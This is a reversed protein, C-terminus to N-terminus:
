NFVWSVQVERFFKRYFFNHLSLIRSKNVLEVLKIEIRGNTGSLFIKSNHQLSRINIHMKLKQHFTNYNEIKVFLTWIPSLEMSWCQYINMFSQSLCTWYNRSCIFNSSIGLYCFVMILINQHFDFFIKFNANRSDSWDICLDTQCMTRLSLRYRNRQWSIWTIFSCSTAARNCNERQKSFLFIFIRM